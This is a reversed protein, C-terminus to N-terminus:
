RDFAQLNPGVEYKHQPKEDTIGMKRDHYAQAVKPFGNADIQFRWNNNALWGIMKSKQNPKCGVLGSLQTASLYM